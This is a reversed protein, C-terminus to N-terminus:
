LRQEETDRHNPWLMATWWLPVSIYLIELELEGMYFLSSGFFQFAFTNSHFRAFAVRALALHSFPCRFKNSSHAILRYDLVNRLQKGSNQIPMNSWLFRLFFISPTMLTNWLPLIGPFGSATSSTLQTSQLGAPMSGTSCNLTESPYWPGTLGSGM